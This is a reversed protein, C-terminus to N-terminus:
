IDDPSFGLQPELPKTIDADLVKQLKDKNKKLNKSLVQAVRDLDVQRHKEQDKLIQKLEADDLSGPENYFYWIVDRLYDVKASLIEIQRKQTPTKPASPKEAPVSSGTTPRPAYDYNDVRCPM